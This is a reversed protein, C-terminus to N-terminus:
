QGLDVGIAHGLGTGPVLSCPLRIFLTIHEARFVRVVEHAVQFAFGHRRGGRLVARCRHQLGPQAIGTILPQFATAGPQRDAIFGQQLDAIILLWQLDRRIGIDVLRVVGELM